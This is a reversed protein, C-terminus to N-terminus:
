DDKKAKMYARIYKGPSEKFDNVVVRIENVLSDLNNYVLDDNLLRPLTGEIGNLRDVVLKLNEGSENIKESASKFNNVADILVETSKNFNEISQTISPTKDRIGSTVVKVDDLVQDIKESKTTIILKLSDSVEKMNATFVRINDKEEDTISDKLEAILSNLELTLNDINKITSQIRLKEQEGLTAKIRRVIAGVDRTIPVIGPTIESFDQERTGQVTEGPPIYHDTDTGPSISVYKEGMIGESKVEIKSDIPIRFAFANDISVEVAIKQGMIKTRVVRGIRKGLMTVNDGENLGQVNDLVITFSFNSKNLSIDQLYLIGLIFVVSTVSIIFGVWFIRSIKM